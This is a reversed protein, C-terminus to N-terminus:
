DRYLLDLNEQVNERYIMGPFPTEGYVRMVEESVHKVNQFGDRTEDFLEYVGDHRGYARRAKEFVDNFGKWSGPLNVSARAAREAREAAERYPTTDAFNPLDYNHRRVAEDTRFNDNVYKGVKECIGSM